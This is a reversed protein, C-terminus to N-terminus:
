RDKKRPILDRSKMEEIIAVFFMLRAPVDASSHNNVWGILESESYGHVLGMSLNTTPDLLRKRQSGAAMTDILKKIQLLLDVLKNENLKTETQNVPKDRKPDGGPFEFIRAM